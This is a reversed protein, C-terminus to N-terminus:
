RICVGVETYGNNNANSEMVTNTADVYADYYQVGPPRPLPRNIPLTQGRALGPLPFDAKALEVQSCKMAKIRAVFPGAAVFPNNNRIVLTAVSETHTFQVLQLDPLGGHFWAQCGIRPDSIPVHLTAGPALPGVLEREISRQVVQQSTVWGNQVTTLTSYTLSIRTGKPIPAPLSNRVAAGAQELACQLDLKPGLNVTATQGAAQGAQIPQPQGVTPLALLLGGVVTGAVVFTRQM